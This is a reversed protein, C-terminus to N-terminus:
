RPHVFPNIQKSSGVRLDPISAFLPIYLPPPESPTLPHAFTSRSPGPAKAASGPALEPAAAPGDEQQAGRCAGSCAPVPPAPTPQADVTKAQHRALEVATHIQPQTPASASKKELSAVARRDPILNQMAIIMTLAKVQGTISGRTMEPSMYAIEWLRNLVKERDLNLRHLGEVAREAAPRSLRSLDAEQQVLQQQVAARHELMYARVTPKSKIYAASDPNLGVAEAAQRDTMGGSLVQRAFAMELDTILDSVKNKPM